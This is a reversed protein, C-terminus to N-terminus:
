LSKYDVMTGFLQEEIVGNEKATIVWEDGPRSSFDKSLRLVVKSIKLGRHYGYYRFVGVRDNSCFIDKGNGVSGRDLQGM